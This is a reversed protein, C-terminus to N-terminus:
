RYAMRHNEDNPDLPNACANVRSRREGLLQAWVLAAPYLPVCTESLLVFRVNQGDTLASRLLALEAEMQSAGCIAKNEASGAFLLLLETGQKSLRHVTQLLQPLAQPAV